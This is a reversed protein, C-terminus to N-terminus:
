GTSLSIDLLHFIHSFSATAVHFKYLDLTFTYSNNARTSIEGHADFPIAKATNSLSKDLSYAIWKKFLQARFPAPPLIQGGGGLSLFSFFGLSFLNLTFKTM